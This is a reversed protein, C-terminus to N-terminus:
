KVSHFTFSAVNYFHLKLVHLLCTRNRPSITRRNKWHANSCHRNDTSRGQTQHKNENSGPSQRSREGASFVFTIFLYVVSRVISLAFSCIFQSLVFSRVLLPVLSPVFSRAFSRASYRFCPRVFSRFFVHVFSLLHTFPLVFSLSSRFFSLVCPLSLSLRVSRHVPPYISSHFCSDITPFRHFSYIYISDLM